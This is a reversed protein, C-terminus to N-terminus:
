ATYRWHWPWSFLLCAEQINKFGSGLTSHRWRPCQDWPLTWVPKRRDSGLKACAKRLVLLLVLHSLNQARLGPPGPKIGPWPVPDWMNCSLGLYIFSKFYFYKKKFSPSVPPGGATWDAWVYLFSTTSIVNSAQLSRAEAEVEAGGQSHPRLCRECRFAENIRRDCPLKM